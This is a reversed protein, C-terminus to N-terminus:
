LTPVTGLGRAIRLLWKLTRMAARWAREARDRRLREFEADIAARASESEQRGELTLKDPEDTESWGPRPKHLYQEIDVAEFAIRAGIWDKASDRVADTAPAHQVRLAILLADIHKTVRGHLEETAIQHTRQRHAVEVM